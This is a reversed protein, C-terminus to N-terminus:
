PQADTAGYYNRFRRLVAPVNEGATFAHRLRDDVPMHVVIRWRWLNALRRCASSVTADNQCLSPIGDTVGTVGVDERQLIALSLSSPRSASRSASSRASPREHRSIDLM